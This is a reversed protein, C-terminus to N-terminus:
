RVGTRGGSLGAVELGAQWGPARGGRPLAIAGADIGCETLLWSVVSASTWMEHTGPARRGWAHPPVTAAAERIREVLECETSLRIPSEVAWEEDPLSDAEYCRLQYRFLKFRGAARLGVPGTMAPAAPEGVFVPTLELTYTVAGQRMKLAPHYLAARKRRSLLAAVAEWCALSFQQARPTGAGVPLWFLDIFCDDAETGAPAPESDPHGTM